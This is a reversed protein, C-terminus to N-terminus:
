DHAASGAGSGDGHGHTKGSGHRHSEGSGPERARGHDAGSGEDSGEKRAGSGPAGHGSGSGAGFGQLDREVGVTRLAEELAGVHEAHSREVLKEAGYLGELLDSHESHNLDLFAQKIRNKLDEPLSSVVAVGHTPVPGQRSIVRISDREEKDLYIGPAYDAAAAADVRDHLLAELAQQYGGAYIVESFYDKPDEGTEMPSEEIFKALPFLYGCTSSPATFAVKRDELDAVSNLDSGADVYWKSHYFPRGNREEVVLLDMGVKQSAVLYPWGSFYAVHAHGGRLAEVVGAYNTPLHFDAEVELKESMYTAMKEADTKLEGPHEQPQFAFIVKSPGDSEAPSDKSAGQEDAPDEGRDCGAVLSLSVLLTLGLSRITRTARKM